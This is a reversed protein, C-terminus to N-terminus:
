AAGVFAKFRELLDDPPEFPWAVPRAEVTSLYGALIVLWEDLSTALNTPCPNGDDELWDFMARTLAAQGLLDEAAYSHSGSEM